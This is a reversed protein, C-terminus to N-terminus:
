RVLMPAKIGRTSDTVARLCRDREETESRAHDLDRRLDAICRASRRLELLAVVHDALFALQDLQPPGPRGDMVCLAGVICGNALRLPVGSLSGLVPDDVVVPGGITVIERSLHGAATATGRTRGAGAKCWEREADVLVIVASPAGSLRCAMAAVADYAAEPATDLVGCSELAVLREAEPCGALSVPAVYAVVTAGLQLEDAPVPRGFLYGQALDCGLEVLRDREAGTEVGEAVVTLGLERGLDIVSRVIAASREDTVMGTVFSRDIKVAQVPFERLQVLHSFGTGFDDLSLRVGLQRLAGLAAIAVGSDEVLATETVELWLAHPPLGSLALADAVRGVLASDALDRASLNVALELAPSPAARWAAVQCCATRLVFDDLEFILPSCEVVALFAAPPLLGQKPHLWRVLAEVKVVAGVAPRVIPQYWVEFEGRGLGEAVEALLRDTEDSRVANAENFSASTIIDALPRVTVQSAIKGNWMVPCSAVEVETTTGDRMTLHLHESAPWDGAAATSRRDRARVKSGPAAFDYIERGIIEDAPWGLLASAGASVSVIVGDRHVVMAERSEEVIRQYRAVQSPLADEDPDSELGATTDM